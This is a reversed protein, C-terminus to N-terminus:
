QRGAKLELRLLTGQTGFAIFQGSGGWFRIHRTLRENGLPAYFSGISSGDLHFLDVHFDGSPDPLPGVVFLTDGSVMADTVIPQSQQSRPGLGAQYRTLQAAYAASLKEPLCALARGVRVQDKYIEVVGIAPVILLIYGASAVVRFENPGPLRLLDSAAVADAAFDVLALSTDAESEYGGLAVGTGPGRHVMEPLIMRSAWLTGDRGRAISQLGRLVPFPSTRILRLSTDYSSLRATGLDAVEIEGSEGAAIATAQQFEGPGSGKRGTVSRIRLNHDLATIVQQIGDLVFLGGPLALVDTVRSPSWVSDDGIPPDRFGLPMLSATISVEGRKVPRLGCSEALSGIDLDGNVADPPMSDRIAGFVNDARERRGCAFLCLLLSGVVWTQRRDLWRHLIPAPIDAEEHPTASPSDEHAHM